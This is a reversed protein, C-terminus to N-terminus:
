WIERLISEAAAADLPRPNPELHRESHTAREAVEPLDGETAGVARLSRDLGLDARLTRLKEIVREARDRATGEAGYLRTGLRGLRDVVAPLDYALVEPLVMAVAEAHPVDYTAQVGYAVAHIAAKGGNVRGLMALTAATAMGERAAPADAGHFTADGLHREILAM